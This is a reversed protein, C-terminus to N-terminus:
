REGARDADQIMTSQARASTDEQTKDQRTPSLEPQWESHAGGVMTAGRKTIWLM